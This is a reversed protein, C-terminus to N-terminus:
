PFLPGEFVCGESVREYQDLTGELKAAYWYPESHHHPVCPLYRFKIREQHIRCRRKRKRTRKNSKEVEKGAIGLKDGEMNKCGSCTHPWIEEGRSEFSKPWWCRRLLCFTIDPLSPQVADPQTWESGELANEYRAALWEARLNRTEPRDAPTTLRASSAIGTFYWGWVCLGRCKKSRVVMTGTGPLVVGGTPSGMETHSRDVAVTSDM